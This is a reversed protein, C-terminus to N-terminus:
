GGGSKKITGGKVTKRPPLDRKKAPKAGRVLTINEQFRTGGGKVKAPSKPPLDKKGPKKMANRRGEIRTGRLLTLNDNQYVGGGKVKTPSKPPFDKKGPRKMM